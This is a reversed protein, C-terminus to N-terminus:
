LLHCTVVLLPTLSSAAHFVYYIKHESSFLSQTCNTFKLLTKQSKNYSNPCIDPGPFGRVFRGLPHMTGAM